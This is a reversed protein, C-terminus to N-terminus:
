ARMTAAGDDGDALKPRGPPRGRFLSRGEIALLVFVVGYQVARVWGPVDGAADFYALPVLACWALWAYSRAAAALPAFWLLYWPHVTPALLLVGGIAWLAERLPDLRRRFTLWLIWLVALGGVAGRAVERPWVHRYWWGWDAADDGFRAKLRDIRPKLVAATDIREAVIEAAAYLSANREWREAYAFTGPGVAPGTAAYPVWPVVVGAVLALLGTTPLRRIAGPILVLPLLKAQVALGLAAGARVIRGAALATVAVVVLAVGLPEVHGSGASELVALPNWAYLVVRHPPLRMARLLAVLGLVVGMDLLGVAVQVGGAGAGVLALVVFLMQALPPYITPVEPHNIRPYVRDDRLEALDADIPAHAYPHVGAIQVRGDWVYRYLDDSMAPGGWAAALRFALAALLIWRMTPGGAGRALRYAALMAALLVAHTALYTGPAERLDGQAALAGYTLISGLALLVLARVRHNRTGGRSQDVAVNV